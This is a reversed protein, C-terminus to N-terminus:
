FFGMCITVNSTTWGSINQNFALTDSFTYEMSIVNSVNWGSIDQNFNTAGGFMSNMDTITLVNWSSIDQNFSSASQFLSNTSTINTLDWGSIDQNFAVASIFMGQIGTVNSNVFNTLPKTSAGSTDGNNFLTANRFMNSLDISSTSSLTWNSIDQNFAEAYHFMWSMNTVNSVNWSSIDQNFKDAYYFMYSMDTVSSTDAWNLAVGGNNFIGLQGNLCAFMNNMYIVSSVDWNSIDQNFSTALYFMLSM